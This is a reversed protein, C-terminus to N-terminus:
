PYQRGQARLVAVVCDIADRCRVYHVGAPLKAGFTWLYEPPPPALWQAGITALCAAPWLGVTFDIVEGSRPCGLWVHMEPLSAAVWGDGRRIVPSMGVRALRAVPSEPDWEYAFHTPSTGDDLEPPM